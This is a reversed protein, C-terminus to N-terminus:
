KDKTKSLSLHFNTQQKYYLINLLLFYSVNIQEVIKRTCM